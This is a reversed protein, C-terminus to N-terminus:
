AGRGGKQLTATDWYVEGSPDILQLRGRKMRLFETNFATMAGQQSGEYLQRPTKGNAPRKVVRWGWGTTM